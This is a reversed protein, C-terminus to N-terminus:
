IGLIYGTVAISSKFIIKIVIIQDSFVITYHSYRKVLFKHFRKFKTANPEMGVRYGNQFIFFIHGFKDAFCHRRRKSSLAL